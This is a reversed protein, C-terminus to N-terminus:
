HYTRNQAWFNFSVNHYNRNQQSLFQPTWTKVYDMCYAYCVKTTAQDSPRMNRPIQIYFVWCCENTVAQRSTSHYMRKINKFVNCISEFTFGAAGFPISRVSRPWSQDFLVSLAVEPPTSMLLIHAISSSVVDEIERIRSVSRLEMAGLSKTTMKMLSDTMKM